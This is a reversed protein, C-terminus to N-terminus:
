LYGKLSFFVRELVLVWTEFAFRTAAKDRGGHGREQLFFWM